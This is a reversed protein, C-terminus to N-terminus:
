GAALAVVDHAIQAATFDPAFQARTRGSADIGLVLSSHAVEREEPSGLVAVGYRKWVPALQAHTGLLYTMRGQMRHARVFARVSAPTDGRPDVSVVVLHARGARSGLQALGARVRDVTLPCVDPCHVFLFTLLVARGRFDALRVRRGDPDTLTFDPAPPAGPVVSAAAFRERAPAGCGGATVALLLTVAAAV